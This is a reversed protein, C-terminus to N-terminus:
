PRLPQRRMSRWIRLLRFYESPDRKLLDVADRNIASAVVGIGPVHRRDTDFLERARQEDRDAHRAEDTALSEREEALMARSEPTCRFWGHQAVDDGSCECM